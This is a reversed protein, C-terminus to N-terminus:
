CVLEAESAAAVSPGESWRSAGVEADEADGRNLDTSRLAPYSVDVVPDGGTPALRTGDPCPESGVHESRTIELGRAVSEHIRLAHTM